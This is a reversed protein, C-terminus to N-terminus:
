IFITVYDPYSAGAEVVLANRPDMDQARLMAELEDFDATAAVIQEEVIAVFWGRPYADIREKMRHYVTNIRENSEHVDM